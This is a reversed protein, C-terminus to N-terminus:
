IRTQREEEASRSTNKFRGDLLNLKLFSFPTNRKREITYHNKIQQKIRTRMRQSCPLQLTAKCVFCTVTGKFAILSLDFKATNFDLMNKLCCFSHHQQKKNAHM